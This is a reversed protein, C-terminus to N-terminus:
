AFISDNTLMAWSASPVNCVVHRISVHPEQALPSGTTLRTLYFALTSVSRWCVYRVALKPPAMNLRLNTTRPRASAAQLLASKSTGPVGLPFRWFGPGLQPRAVSPAQCHTFGVGEPLVM